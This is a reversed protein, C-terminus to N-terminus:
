GDGIVFLLDGGEVSQGPEVHLKAVVGAVESRIENEMKMAELVVVGTGVEVPQGEAVLVAVVRGPMYAHVERKGRDPAAAVSGRALHSLPDRVEVLTEGGLAGIRYRGDGEAQTSVEWQLGGIVLSYLSGGAPACDVEFRRGDVEVLYGERTREIAVRLEREGELIVLDM